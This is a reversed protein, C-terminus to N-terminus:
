ESGDLASVLYMYLWVEVGGGMDEHRLAYNLPWSAPVFNEQMYMKLM